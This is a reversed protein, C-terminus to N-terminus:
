HCYNVNLASYRLRVSNMTLFQDSGHLGQLFTLKTEEYLQPIARNPSRRLAAELDSRFQSVLHETQSPACVHLQSTPAELLKWVDDPDTNAVALVHKGERRCAKCGFYTYDGPASHRGFEYPPIYLTVRTVTGKKTVQNKTVFHHEPLQPTVDNVSVFTLEATEVLPAPTSNELDGPDEYDPADSLGDQFAADDDSDSYDDPDSEAYCNPLCLLLLLVFSHSTYMM